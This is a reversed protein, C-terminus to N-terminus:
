MRRGAACCPTSAPRGRGAAGAARGIREVGAAQEAAAEGALVADSGGAAGGGAQALHQRQGGHHGAHQQVAGPEDDGAEEDHDARLNLILADEELRHHVRHAHAFHHEGIEGGERGGVRQGVRQDAADVGQLLIKGDHAARLQDADDGALADHVGQAVVAVAVHLRDHGRAKWTARGSSVSPAVMRRRVAPRPSESMGTVSLPRTTPMTLTCFRILEM